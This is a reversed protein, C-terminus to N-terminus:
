KLTLKYITASENLSGLQRINVTQGTHEEIFKTVIDLQQSNDPVFVLNDKQALQLLLHDPDVNWQGLQDYWRQGDISWSGIKVVQQFHKPTHIEFIPLLQKYRMGSGTVVLTDPHQEMWDTLARDSSESSPAFPPTTQNMYVISGLAICLLTILPISLIRARILPSKAGIAASDDLSYTISLVFTLTITGTLLIALLANVVARQRVYLMLVCTAILLGTALCLALLAWQRRVNSMFRRIRNITLAMLTACAVAICLNRMTAGARMIRTPSFEYKNPITNMQGLKGINTVSYVDFDAFIWNYYANLDNRSWRMSEFEKKHDDYTVPQYDVMRHADDQRILANANHPNVAYAHSHIVNAAGSATIVLALTLSLIIRQRKGSFCWAFIIIALTAIIAIIFSPTRVLCGLWLLVAPFIYRYWKTDSLANFSIGCAGIVAIVAGVTTYTFSLSTVVQILALLCIPLKNNTRSRLSEYGYGFALCELGVLIIPYWPLFPAAYYLAQLVWGIIINIFMLYPANSNGYGNGAIIALLPDDVVLYHVHGLIIVGYGLVLSLAWCFVVEHRALLRKSIHLPGRETKYAVADQEPTELAPRNESGTKM